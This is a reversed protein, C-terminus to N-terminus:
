IDGHKAKCNDFHWRAMANRHGIKGCYPCEVPPRAAHAERMKRRTEETHRAGFFSNGEGQMAASLAAKYEDSHTRGFMPNNAGRIDQNLGLAVRRRAAISLKENRTVAGAEVYLKELETLVVPKPPTRRARNREALAAREYDRIPTKRNRKGKFIARLKERTESRVPHGKQAASMRALAEPTHKRGTMATRLKAKTEESPNALGGGGATMNYRPRLEAIWYMERADLSELPVQAELVIHEFSDAGYKRIAASIIWPKGNRAEQKHKSWRAGLSMRTQGVYTSGNVNNRLLYIAGTM